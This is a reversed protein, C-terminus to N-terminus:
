VSANKNQFTRKMKLLYLRVFVLYYNNAVVTIPYHCKDKDIVKKTCEIIVCFKKKRM